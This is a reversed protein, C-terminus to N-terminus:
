HPSITVNSWDNNRPMLIIFPENGVLGHVWPKVMAYGVQNGISIWAGVSLAYHQAKIYLAARKQKNFTVDAQDVLKNYYPDNFGGTNWTEGGRLLLTCYDQPDPYDQYWLEQALDTHSSVLPKEITDVWATQPLGVLKVGIGVASWM